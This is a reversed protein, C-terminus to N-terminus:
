RRTGLTGGQSPEFSISPFAHRTVTTRPLHGSNGKTGPRNPTISFCDSGRKGGVLQTLTLDQFAEKYSLAQVRPPLAPHLRGTGERNTAVEQPETVTGGNLAEQQPGKGPPHPIGHKLPTKGRGVGLEAVKGGGPNLVAVWGAGGGAGGGGAM